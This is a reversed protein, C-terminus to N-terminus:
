DVTQTNYTNTIGPVHMYTIFINMSACYGSATATNKDISLRYRAYAIGYVTAADYGLATGIYKGTAATATTPKAHTSKKLPWYL